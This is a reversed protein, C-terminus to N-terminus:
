LLAVAQLMTTAMSQVEPDADLNSVGALADRLRAITSGPLIVENSRSTAAVSARGM